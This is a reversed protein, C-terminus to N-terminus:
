RGRECNATACLSPGPTEFRGLAKMPCRWLAAPARTGPLVESYGSSEDHLGFRLSGLPVM